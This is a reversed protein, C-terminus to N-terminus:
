ISSTQERSTSLLNRFSTVDSVFLSLLITGFGSINVSYKYVLYKLVGGGQGIEKKKILEPIFHVLAIYKLCPILFYKKLSCSYDLDIYRFIGVFNGQWIM